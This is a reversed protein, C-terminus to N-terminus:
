EAALSQRAQTLLHKFHVYVRKLYRAQKDPNKSHYRAVGEWVDGARDIQRKLIWAGAALNACGDSALRYTLTSEPVGYHKALHPIWVTNVSMVGLDRTGNRNVAMDGPLGRETKLVALLVYPDIGNRESERMFCEFTPMSHRGPLLDNRRVIAPPAEVAAPPMDLTPLM